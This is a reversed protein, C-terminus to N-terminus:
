TSIFAGREWFDAQTQKQIAASLSNLEGIFNDGEPEFGSAYDAVRFTATIHQVTPANRTCITCLLKGDDQWIMNQRPPVQWLSSIVGNQLYLWLAKRTLTM